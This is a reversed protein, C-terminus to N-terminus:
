PTKESKETDDKGDGGEDKDHADDGAQVEITASRTALGRRWNDKDDVAEADDGAAVAKM